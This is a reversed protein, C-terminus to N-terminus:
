LKKWAKGIYSNGIDLSKKKKALCFNARWFDPTDKIKKLLLLIPLDRESSLQSKFVM